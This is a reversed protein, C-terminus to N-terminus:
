LRIDIFATRQLTRLFQRSFHSLRESRLRINTRKKFEEVPDEVVPDKRECVMYVSVGDPAQVPNSIDGAKLSGILQQLTASLKSLQVTGLNGSLASGTKKGIVDMEKCNNAQGKVNTAASIQASKEQQTASPSFPLHLQYLSLTTEGKSAAALGRSIRSDRLAFIYYGDVGKVPPSIQGPKLAAVAVQLGQELQGHRVWGLDGAVAAMPSQSFNTALGKFSAGSKLQAILKNAQNAVKNDDAPNDVSLFIEALLYEPKGQNNKVDLIIADIEEEDIHVSPGYKRAILTEWELTVKFQEKLTAKSLGNARLFNDLEGKAMNNRAEFRELARNIDSESATIQFDTSQQSKLKEVILNNLIQRALRRKTEPTDPLRSLAAVLDIRSTLDFASVIDDNVIAVIGTSNQAHVIPIGILTLVTVAAYLFRYM